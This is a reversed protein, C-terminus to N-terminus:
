WTSGWGGGRRPNDLVDVLTRELTAVRVRGGAPPQDLIGGGMDPVARLPPPCQVLFQEQM